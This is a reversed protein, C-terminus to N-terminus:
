ASSAFTYADDLQCLYTGRRGSVSNPQITCLESEPLTGCNGNSTWLCRRLFIASKVTHWPDIFASASCTHATHVDSCWRCDSSGATGICGKRIDTLNAAPLEPTRCTADAPAFRLRMDGAAFKLGVLCPPLEVRRHLAYSVFLRSQASTILYIPKCRQLLELHTRPKSVGFISSDSDAGSGGEPKIRWAPQAGRM